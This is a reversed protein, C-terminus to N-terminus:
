IVIEDLNTSHTSKFLNFNIGSDLITNKNTNESIDQNIKNTSDNSTSLLRNVDALRLQKQRLEEAKSFPLLVQKKSTELNSKIDNLNNKFRDLTEQMRELLNDMRTINGIADKGFSGNYSHNNFLRLKFENDLFNYQTAIKFGRYQGIVREISNSGISHIAKLLEEGAEKKDTYINNGLQISTFKNEGTSLPELLEIDNKIREIYLELKKIEEPYIQNIKNELDFINSKYNKELMKLKNVQVDLDMKEKILPNGTALSKIEAYSLVNEDIDEAVRAPSKSTMIQSIFKQKNEITQWLYSDFTNETVYRFIKVEKNENGQRVIRGARQELDSPRWPVDLDHIYALKNQINTGAGCKQTSGFFIRIEGKRVKEFLEEKQKDNNADHIFAIENEPIGKKILKNKIDDYLNFKEKSPTSMDCFILQTGKTASTENYLNFVNDVCINVKSNPNDEFADNILRQDLALKKGDNTIKLMNDETADIKNNRVAEARESLSELLQKQLETPKTVITKYESDPTPLDLMDATKVDAFDKFMTMLEPLNYFKSFRTKLRYNNGEPSLEIASVTEGFTTAWSDFHHLGAEELKDYSLYRQLTYMESMTNSVPTGTAFIIGRGNTKEDMYRCKMFMDSSKLAETQGIGAVNQMKTYLYLNKYSHAEDVVLKDIGLEDFNIVDDKKTDDLLKELRTELKKRTSELQKVTFGTDKEEKYEKIANLIENIEKKIHNTQYEKSMPIKEFQTHGIIVADYEGTAIKGVFKKRNKPEFDKKKAVLINASPYLELFERGIQGTLHNPVVMLAKNSFGLKKSEMISAVMEYTKGAGVVHAFLTNGGFLARAVADKQHQRLTKEINMSDFTLNSGDYHRNVVSNFKENYIKELHTRRNYDKYIWDKFDEKLIDQKQNALTTQEPNLVRIYQGDSNKIRDFIKVDRLNLSSELISYGNIRDTGYKTTALTNLSDKSKNSIKYEGTINSFELIIYNKLFYPTNFIEHMFLEYYKTPIWTAGLRVNIESATLDKPLVELLKSKQFELVSIDKEIIDKSINEDTVNNRIYEIHEDIISIKNRINGSLYEDQSVYQISEEPYPYTFDDNLKKIDIFIRGKLDKILKDKNFNTLSQMYDFDVTGKQNISLILSKEATDVKDVIEPKKITRKFFIDGKEKFKDKELIEISSVLPYNSDESLLKDNTRSNLYGYDKSFKDYITNLNNRSEIIAQENFNNLQKHIVDKVSETLKVYDKIKQTDKENFQKEYLLSNERYFIVDDIISFSFNKVDDTAPLTRLPLENESEEIEVEQYTGKINKIAKNLETSLETNNKSIYALKNGFRGSIESMYGIIMDPNDIFYKNYTLGNEDIDLKYWDQEIDVISNKKQLFIIDSKVETGAVGKFTDNPLRIAGLLDCRSGIYRRISDDKKDLTGNSTIFAIIGGTRIKDISKAFFYDHIFFNNKNYARDNLKFEGFPVNGVAVDFLNNSFKTEEFGKIQINFNTYLYKAIKGSISDLEIGYIKSNNLSDPLNGLFNGTGCSPELINGGKFGMNELAKYINDIVTKPTYFATLSSERASIYELETLNEKLFNRASEWQGTKNEDFVESLGGWGVYKSLIEQANIDLERQGSEIRKIMSIAELNNNLRESPKLKEPIIENTIKFNNINLSKKIEVNNYESKENNTTKQIQDPTLLINKNEQGSNKDESLVRDLNPKNNLKEDTRKIKYNNSDMLTDIKKSDEFSTGIFTSLGDIKKNLQKLSIDTPIEKKSISIYEYGVNLIIQEQGVTKDESLVQDLDPKNALEKRNEERVYNVINLLEKKTNEVINIFDKELHNANIDIFTSENIFNSNLNLKFAIIQAINNIYFDKFQENNISFKEYLKNSYNLINKEFEEQSIQRDMSDLNFYDTIYKYDRPYTFQFLKFKPTKGTLNDKVQTKDFLYSLENNTNIYPIGRQKKSVTCNIKNWFNEDACSNAYPLYKSVMVNMKYDYKYNNAAAKLFSRLQFNSTFIKKLQEDYVKYFVTIEM